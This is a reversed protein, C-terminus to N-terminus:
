NVLKVIGQINELEAYDVVIASGDILTLEYDILNKFQSQSISVTGGKVVNLTKSDSTAQSDSITAQSIQVTSDTSTLNFLQAGGSLSQM